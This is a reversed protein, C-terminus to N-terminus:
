SQQELGVTFRKQQVVCFGLSLLDLGRLWGCTYTRSRLNFVLRQLHVQIARVFRLGYVFKSASIDGIVSFERQTLDM